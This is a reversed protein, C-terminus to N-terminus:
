HAGGDKGFVIGVGFGAALALIISIVGYMAGNNRAMSSLMKVIGTQEVLVESQASEVVSGDKVAFVSVDYKGPPAQYPWQFITSYAQRGNEEKVEISKDSEAYQRNAEKYKFFQEFWPASDEVNGKSAELTANGEIAVYGINHQKMQNKQLIDKPRHTSKLLYVSPINEFSLKDVNMWLFGGVKAKKMLHQEGLPSSIAIVLDMGPDSTGKVSVTSGHYNYNVKIHDHNAKLTLLASAPSSLLGLLAIVGVSILSVFKFMKM